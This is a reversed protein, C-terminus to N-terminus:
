REQELLGDVTERIVQRSLGIDALQHDDLAELERLAALRRRHRRWARYRERTFRVFARIAASRARHAADVYATYEPRMARLITDNSMARDELLAPRRSLM